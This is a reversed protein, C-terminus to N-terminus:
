EETNNFNMLKYKSLDVEPLEKVTEFEILPYEITVKQEGVKKGNDDYDYVTMEIKFPLYNKPNIYILDTNKNKDKNVAKVIYCDEGRKISKIDYDSYNEWELTEKTFTEGSGYDKDLYEKDIENIVIEKETTTIFTINRDQSKNNVYKEGNIVITEIVMEADDSRQKEIIHYNGTRGADYMATLFNDKVKNFFTMYKIFLALVILVIIILLTKLLKKNKM